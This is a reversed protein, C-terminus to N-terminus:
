ALATEHCDFITSGDSMDSESSGTTFSTPPPVAKMVPVFGGFCSSGEGGEAITAKFIRIHRCLAPSRRLIKVAAPPKYM